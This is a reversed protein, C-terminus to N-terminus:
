RAGDHIGAPLGRAASRLMFPVPPDIRIERFAPHAPNLLYTREAPVITSPVALVASTLREAWLTGWNCLDTSSPYFRWDREPADIRTHVAPVSEPIEASIIVLDGPLEDRGLQVFLELAALSVTESTYVIATGPHSWRGGALRAGQGDFAAHRRRCVRFVRM